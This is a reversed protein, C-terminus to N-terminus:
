QKTVRKRWKSERPQFHEGTLNEFIRRIGDFCDMLVDSMDHTNGLHDTATSYHALTCNLVDEYEKHVLRLMEKNDDSEMIKALAESHQKAYRFISEFADQEIPEGM